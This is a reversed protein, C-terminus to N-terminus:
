HDKALKGHYAKEIMAKLENGNVILLALITFTPIWSPRYFPTSFGSTLIMNTFGHLNGPYFIKLNSTILAAIM